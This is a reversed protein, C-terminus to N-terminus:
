GSRADVVAVLRGPLLSVVRGRDLAGVAALHGKLEDPRLSRRISRKGDEFAFSNRFFRGLVQFGAYSWASRCLDSVVWRRSVCQDMLAFFRHIVPDPLHHMVHNSFVYDVPGFSGLDMLDAQVISLGPEGGVTQQAFAVARPDGDMATVRLSLGRQRATRLLWVPIDCGGAGVDILHWDRRPDTAMDSLVARDLVTRYRSVLRNLLRFQRLTAFLQQEDCAPDDMREAGNWRCSFDLPDGVEATLPIEPLGGM